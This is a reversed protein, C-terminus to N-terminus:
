ARTAWCRAYRTSTPTRPRLILESPELSDLAEPHGDRASSRAPRVARIPLGHRRRGRSRAPSGPRAPQPRARRDEGVEFQGEGLIRVIVVCRGTARAAAATHCTRRARTTMPTAEAEAAPAAAPSGSELQAAPAGTPLEGKLRRLELEVDQSSSLRDLEATIDDKAMGTPDDLAGSALLEDIAGARAQLNQTREEARQM